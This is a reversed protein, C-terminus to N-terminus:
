LLNAPKDGQQLELSSKLNEWTNKIWHQAQDERVFMYVVQCLYSFCASAKIVKNFEEAFGHPSETM